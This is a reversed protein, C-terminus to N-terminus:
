AKWLGHLNCYAYVSQVTEGESLVFSAKPPQGPQLFKRYIGNATEVAIWEIHHVEVMPHEVSGVVVQVESGNLTYVPVHKDAAGDSTGPILQTMPQGCCHMPVGKDQILEAMNGCHECIYVKM